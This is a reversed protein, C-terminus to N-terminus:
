RAWEQALQRFYLELGDIIGQAYQRRFRPTRLSAEDEPLTIVAGECLVSPLWTPRLLAFDARRIGRDASELRRRLGWHVSTALPYSAGGFVFTASGRMAFPNRGDPVADVHISVLAHAESTDAILVREALSVAGEGTRTLITNAGRRQLSRALENAIDMTVAREELGNPGVAGGPPHGADVLITLGDLPRKTAVDPPRRIDIVVSANARRVRYGYLPGRTKISMRVGATSPAFRVSAVLSDHPHLVAQSDEITAHSFTLILSDGGAHLHIPTLASSSVIVSTALRSGTIRTSGTRVAAATSGSALGLLSTDRARIWLESGNVSVRAHEGMRGVLRAPTGLLLLWERTGEREYDAFVGERHALASNEGSLESDAVQRGLTPRARMVSRVTDDDLSAEFHYASDRLPFPLYGLFVGEHNVPVVTGNVRLRARGNGVSGMVYDSDRVVEINVPHRILLQLPGDAIRGSSPSDCSTGQGVAVLSLLALCTARFTRMM